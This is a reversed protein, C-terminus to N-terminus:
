RALCEMEGTFNYSVNAIAQLRSIDDWSFAAAPDGANVPPTPAVKAAADCAAKIPWAPLSGIFSTAYPYNVMAMTGIDGSLSDILDLVDRPETIDDCLKFHEKIEAWKSADYALSQLDFFGRQQGNYCDDGGQKHIVASATETFASPDTAGKFWLLPASSAVAGQIWQPYKMRLWAALMGGYSGGFAITASNELGKYKGSAKLDALLDVYDWLVQEVSLMRLNEPSFSDDGFPMSQGYFRHEAFVVLGKFEPGLTDVIFGSNNYFGWVGGENGAYFLIPGPKTDDWSADNVLYRMKFTSDDSANFHNVRASFTNEHPQLGGPDAAELHAKVKEEVLRAERPTSALPSLKRPKFLAQVDSAALLLLMSLLIGLATTAFSSKM